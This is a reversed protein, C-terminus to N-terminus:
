SLSPGFSDLPQPQIHRVDQNSHLHFDERGSAYEDGADFGALFIQIDAFDANPRTAQLRKM